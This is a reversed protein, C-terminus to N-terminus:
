LTYEIEQFFDCNMANLLILLARSAYLLWCYTQEVDAYGSHCVQDTMDLLHATPKLDCRNYYWM